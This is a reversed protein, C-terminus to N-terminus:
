GLVLKVAFKKLASSFFEGPDLSLPSFFLVNGQYLYMCYICIMCSSAASESTLKLRALVKELRQM